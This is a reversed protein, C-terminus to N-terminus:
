LKVGITMGDGLPVLTTLFGTHESMFSNFKQLSTVTKSVDTKTIDGWALTNDAIVVGGKKLFPFTQLVYDVYAEKNADIFIFDVTENEPFQTLTETANGVVITTNNTFGAKAIQNRLFEAYEPNREYCYLHGEEPLARLLTIASYGALSGIEIGRKAGMSRLYVSLFRAQLQGISISPIGQQEADLRLQQLMSDEESFMSALYQDIEPTVPTTTISM